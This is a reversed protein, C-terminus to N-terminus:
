AAVAQRASGKRRNADQAEQSQWGPSEWSGGDRIQGWWVRALDPRGARRLRTELSRPAKTVGFAAAIQGWGVGAEVMMTFEAVFEARRCDGCLGGRSGLGRRAGCEACPQNREATM